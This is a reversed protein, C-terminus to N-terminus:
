AGPATTKAAQRAEHITELKHVDRLRLGSRKLIFRAAAVGLQQKRSLEPVQALKNQYMAEDARATLDNASMEGELTATGIALSIGSEMVGLRRLDGNDSRALYGEFMEQLRDAIAQMGDADTYASIMFEDGGIRGGSAEWSRKGVSDPRREAEVDTRQSTRLVSVIANELGEIVGDGRLHGRTDNVEKFNNIDIFAASLDTGTSKAIEVREALQTHWPGGELLEPLTPNPQQNPAIM